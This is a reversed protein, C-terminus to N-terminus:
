SHAKGSEARKKAIYDRMDESSTSKNKGNNNSKLKEYFVVVYKVGDGNTKRLKTLSLFNKSWFDDKRIHKTIQHIMEFPINDIRNLKDITDMWNNKAAEKSPRLHDDFENLCKEFCDHVESSYVKKIDTEKGNGNDNVTDTDNVIVKDRDAHNADTKKREYANAHWRKKANESNKLSKTRWKDLDRKLTSKMNAFVAKILVSDTEPSKDRVYDCLHKILKGADENSLEDFTEGWDVYFLFSKKDKAM